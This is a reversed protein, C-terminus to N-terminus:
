ITCSVFTIVGGGGGKSESTHFGEIIFFIIPERVFFALASYKWQTVIDGIVVTNQLANIKM